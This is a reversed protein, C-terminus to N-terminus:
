QRDEKITDEETMGSKERTCFHTARNTGWLSSSEEDRKPELKGNRVVLTHKHVYVCGKKEEAFKNVRMTSIIMDENKLDNGPLRIEDAVGNAAEETPKFGNDIIKFRNIEYQFFEIMSQHGVIKNWLLLLNRDNGSYGTTNARFASTDITM